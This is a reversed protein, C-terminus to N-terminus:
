SMLDDVRRLATELPQFSMLFPRGALQEQLYGASSGVYAIKVATDLLTAILYYRRLSEQRWSQRLREREASVAGAGSACRPQGDIDAAPAKLLAQIALASRLLTSRHVEGFLSAARIYQEPGRLMQGTLQRMSDVPDMGMSTCFAFLDRYWACLAAVCLVHVALYCQWAASYVDAEGLRDFHRRLIDDAARDAAVEDAFWKDHNAYDSDLIFYRNKERARIERDGGGGPTSGSLGFGLAELEDIHRALKVSANAVSAELDGPSVFTAFSRQQQGSLVHGLEHGAFFLALLTLGDLVGAPEGGAVAKQDARLGVLLQRPDALRQVMAFMAKDCLHLSGFFTHPPHFSRLAAEMELIFAANIVILRDDPLAQCTRTFYKSDRLKPGAETFDAFFIRVRAAEDPLEVTDLLQRVRAAVERVVPDTSERVALERSADDAAM